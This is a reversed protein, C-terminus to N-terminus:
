LTEDSQYRKFQEAVYKQELARDQMDTVRCHLDYALKVSRVLMLSAAFILYNGMPRNLWRVGFGLGILAIAEVHKVYEERWGPLLRWLHPAGCYMSHVRSKGAHRLYISKCMRCFWVVTYLVTFWFLPSGESPPVTSRYVFLILIAAIGSDIYNIGMPGHLFIELSLAVSRVMAKLIEFLSQDAPGNPQSQNSM